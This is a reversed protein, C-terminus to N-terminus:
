ASQVALCVAQVLEEPGRISLGVYTEAKVVLTGTPFTVEYRTIEQSGGVGFSAVSIRGGSAKVLRHLRETLAIDFEPGLVIEVEEPKVAHSNHHEIGQLLVHDEIYFLEPCPEKPQAAIVLLQGLRLDPKREWAQRLAELVVAIRKPDRM